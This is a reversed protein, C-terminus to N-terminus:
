GSLGLSTLIPLAARATLDCRSRPQRHAGPGAGGVLAHERRPRGARDGARARRRRARPALLENVARHREVRSKGSFATSVLRVRFHARARATSSRRMATIPITIAPM